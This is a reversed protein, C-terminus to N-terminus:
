NNRSGAFKGVLMAIIIAIYLQGSVSILTALSRAAPATPLVDGYGVTTMTIFTYYLYNSLNNTNKETFLMGEPFKYAAPSFSMIVAVILTFMIGLLLYGNISELIVKANVYKSKSILYRFNGVIFVFFLIAFIKGIINLFAFKEPHSIWILILLFVVITLIQKRYKEITLGITIIILTLFVNYLINGWSSPCIPIIFVFILVFVLLSSNGLHFNSILPRKM